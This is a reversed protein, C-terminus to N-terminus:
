WTTFRRKCTCTGRGPGLAPFERGSCAGVPVLGAGAKQGTYPWTPAPEGAGALRRPALTEGHASTVAPGSLRLTVRVAACNVWIAAGRSSLLVVSTVTADGRPMRYPALRRWRSRRASIPRISAVISLSRPWVATHPPAPAVDSAVIYIHQDIGRRFRHPLHRPGHQRAPDPRRSASRHCAVGAGAGAVAPFGAPQWQPAPRDGGWHGSPAMAKRGIGLGPSLPGSILSASKM